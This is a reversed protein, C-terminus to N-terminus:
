IGERKISHTLNVKAAKWAGHCRCAAADEGNRHCYFCYRTESSKSLLRLKWTDVVSVLASLSNGLIYKRQRGNTDKLCNEILQFFNEPLINCVCM